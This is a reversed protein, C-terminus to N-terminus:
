GSLNKMTQRLLMWGLISIRIQSLLKTGVWWKVGSM